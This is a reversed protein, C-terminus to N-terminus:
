AHGEAGRGVREEGMGSLGMRWVRRVRCEFCCVVEVEGTRRRVCRESECVSMDFRERRAGIERDFLFYRIMECCVVSVGRMMEFM